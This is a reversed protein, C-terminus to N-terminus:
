RRGAADEGDQVFPLEEGALWASPPCGALDNWERALHAQDYYGCVAAVSALPPRGPEKLLRKSREFRMVRAAEKPRLGYEAAFRESLHRRSWGVERALDGIRVAGDTDALRRWAYGVEPPPGPRRDMGRSLVDEVVAFRAPWASAGALREVLEGTRAGILDGLSLVASGLEAAPLGFLSRAGEPTLDLQIGALDGDHSIRVPRTHLGGALATLAASGYPGSTRTPAGLSLVVTLHRSPLGLHTGAPFGEYRYGVCRAVASTLRGSPRWRVSQSIRRSGGM